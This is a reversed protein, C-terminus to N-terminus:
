NVPVKKVIYGPYLVLDTELETGEIFRYKLARDLYWGEFIFVYTYQKQSQSGSGETVLANGIGPGTILDALSITEDKEYEGKKRFEGTYTSPLNSAGLARALYEQNEDISGMKYEAAPKPQRFTVEIESMAYRFIESHNDLLRSTEHNTNYTWTSLDAGTVPDKDYNKKILLDQFKKLEDQADQGSLSYNYPENLTDKVEQRITDWAATNAKTLQQSVNATGYNRDLNLQIAENRGMAEQKVSDFEYGAPVGYTFNDGPAYGFTNDINTFGNGEPIKIEENFLVFEKRYSQKMEIADASYSYIQFKLVGTLSTNNMEAMLYDAIELQAYEYKLRPIAVGPADKNDNNAALANQYATNATNYAMIEPTDNGERDEAYFYLLDTMELQYQLFNDAQLMQSSYTDGNYPAASTNSIGYVAVDHIEQRAKFAMQAANMKKYFQHSYRYAEKYNLKRIRLNDSWEAATFVDKHSYELQKEFDADSLTDYGKKNYDYYYGYLQVIKDKSNGNAYIDNFSKVYVLFDYDKLGVVKDKSFEDFSMDEADAMGQVVQQAYLIGEMGVRGFEDGTMGIAFVKGMILREQRRVNDDANNKANGTANDAIDKLEDLKDLDDIFSSTAPNYAGSGEEGALYAVTKVMKAQPLAAKAMSDIIGAPTSAGFIRSVTSRDFLRQEWDAQSEGDGQLYEDNEEEIARALEAEQEARVTANYTITTVNYYNTSSGYDTLDALVPMVRPLDEGNKDKDKDGNCAFLALSLMLAILIILVKKKM